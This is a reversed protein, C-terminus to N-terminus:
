HTPFFNQPHKIVGQDLCTKGFHTTKGIRIQGGYREWELLIVEEVLKQCFYNIPVFLCFPYNVDKHTKGKVNPNEGNARPNSHKGERNRTFDYGCRKLM